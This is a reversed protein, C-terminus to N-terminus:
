ESLVGHFASRFWSGPGIPLTRRSSLVITRDRVRPEPLWSRCWNRLERRLTPTAEPPATASRYWQVAGSM